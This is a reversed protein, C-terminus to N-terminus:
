FFQSVCDGHKTYWEKLFNNAKFQKKWIICIPLIYPYATLHDRCMELRELRANLLVSINLVNWLGKKMGLHCFM